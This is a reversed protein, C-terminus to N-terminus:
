SPKLRAAFRLTAIGLALVAGGLVTYLIAPHQESWPKKTPAPPRYLPNPEQRDLVWNQEPLIQKALVLPLDYQPMATNEPEPGEYYLWYTGPSAALFKTQYVTGEAQVADVQIPKDDLNSIRLRYYRNGGTAFVVLSEEVFQPGPLRTLVGAGCYTWTKADSSGEVSVARQFQPSSSFVRLGTIPLGQQGVDVLVLTSKMEANESVQPQVKAFVELEEARPEVRYKIETSLVSGIETWGFMTLRLFPRTSVPYRVATSAMERGDQMFNFITATDRAVSWHKADESTEVRVRSRFNKRDTVIVISNHQGRFRNRVVFQLGAGPVVVQDLLETNLSPVLYDLHQGPSTFVFPTEEDDRYIRLKYYRSGIAAYVDKDLRVVAVGDGPTLPIRKRFKWASLDLPAATAAVAFFLLLKPARTM